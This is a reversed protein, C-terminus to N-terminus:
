YFIGWIKWDVYLEEDGKLWVIIKFLKIEVLGM